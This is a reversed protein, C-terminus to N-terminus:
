TYINKSSWIDAESKHQCINNLQLLASSAERRMLALQYIYCVYMQKINGAKVLDYMGCRDM